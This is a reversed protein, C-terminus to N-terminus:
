TKTISQGKLNEHGQGALCKIKHNEGSVSTKCSEGRIGINQVVASMNHPLGAEPISKTQGDNPVQVLIHPATQQLSTRHKQYVRGSIPEKGGLLSQLLIVYLDM